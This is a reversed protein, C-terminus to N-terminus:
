RYYPTSHCPMLFLISAPRKYEHHYESAIDALKDMVDIPGRQHVTSLYLAPVSNGLILLIAVLWLSLRYYLIFLEMSLIHECKAFHSQIVNKIDHVIYVCRSAKYSWKTLTDTAIYLCLPLLCLAFRFEKHEVTSLVMLALLITILLHKRVPYSERNRITEITGFLFPLFNIGLVTPLGM